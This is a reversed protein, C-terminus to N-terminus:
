RIHKLHQGKMNLGEPIVAPPTSQPMPQDLHYADTSLGTDVSRSQESSGTPQHRPESNFDRQNREGSGIGPAVVAPSSFSVQAARPQVIGRSIAMSEDYSPCAESVSGVDLTGTTPQVNNRSDADRRTETSTSASPAHSREAKRSKQGSGMIMRNKVDRPRTPDTSSRVDGESGVNRVRLLDHQQRGPLHFLPVMAPELHTADQQANLHEIHEGEPKWQEYPVVLAEELSTEEDLLGADGGARDVWGASGSSNHGQRSADLAALDYLSVRLKSGPVHRTAVHIAEFLFILTFVAFTGLSVPFLSLLGTVLGSVAFVVCAVLDVIITAFWRTKKRFRVFWAILYVAYLMGIVLEAIATSSSYFLVINWIIQFLAMVMALSSLVLMVVIPWNLKRHM